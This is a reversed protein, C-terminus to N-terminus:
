HVQALNRTCTPVWSVENLKKRKYINEWHNKQGDNHSKTGPVKELEIYRCFYNVPALAETLNTGSFFKFRGFNAEHISLQCICPFNILYFALTFRSRYNEQKKNNSCGAICIM